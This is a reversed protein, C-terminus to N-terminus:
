CYAVELECFGSSDRKAEWSLFITRWMLDSSHFGGTRTCPGWSLCCDTCHGRRLQVSGEDDGEKVELSLRQMEDLAVSVLVGVWFWWVCKWEWRFNFNWLQILSIRDSAQYRLSIHLSMFAEKECEWCLDRLSAHAIEWRLGECSLVDEFRQTGTYAAKIPSAKHLDFNRPEEQCKTNMHWTLM